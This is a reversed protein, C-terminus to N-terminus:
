TLHSRHSCHWSHHRTDSSAVHSVAKRSQCAGTLNPALVQQLVHHQGVEVILGMREAGKVIQGLRIKEPPQALRIRGAMGRTAEMVGACALQRVVEMLHNESIGYADAITSIATLKAQDLAFYILARLTYDSFTTLRMPAM